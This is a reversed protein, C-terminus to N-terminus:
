MAHKLPDLYWACATEAGRTATAAARGRTSLRLGALVVNTALFLMDWAGM